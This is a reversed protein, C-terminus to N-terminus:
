REIAEPAPQAVCEKGSTVVKTKITIQFQCSICRVATNKIKRDPQEAKM